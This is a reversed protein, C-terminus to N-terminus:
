VIRIATAGARVVGGIGDRFQTDFAFVPLAKSFLM